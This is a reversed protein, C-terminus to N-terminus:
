RTRGVSLPSEARRCGPLLAESWVKKNLEEYFDPARQIQVGQFKRESLMAWPAALRTGLRRIAETRFVASRM